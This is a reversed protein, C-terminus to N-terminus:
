DLAIQCKTVAWDCHRCLCISVPQGSTGLREVLGKTVISSSSGPDLFANTEVVEGCKTKVKVPVIPMMTRRHPERLSVGGSVVTHDGSRGGGSLPRSGSPSVRSAGSSTSSAGPALLGGGPPAQDSCFPEESVRSTTFAPASPSLGASTSRPPRARHLLTPHQAGCVKCKLRAPCFRAVHGRRLCGFCLRLGYVVKKREEWAQQRLQSCDDICHSGGCSWCRQGPSHSLPRVSAQQM